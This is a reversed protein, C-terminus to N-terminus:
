SRKCKEPAQQLKKKMESKISKLGGNKKLLRSLNVLKIKAFFVARLKM